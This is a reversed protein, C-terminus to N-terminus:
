NRVAGCDSHIIGVEFNLLGDLRASMTESFFKRAATKGDFRRIFKQLVSFTFANPIDVFAARLADRAASINGSSEELEALAVRLLTLQPNCEIGESLVTKSFKVNDQLGGAMPDAASQGLEFKSYALWVEAHHRLCCLAQEFLCRVNKVHLESSLRGPNSM